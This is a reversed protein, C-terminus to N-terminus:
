LKGKRTWGSYRQVHEKLIDEVRESVDTPGSILGIAPDNAEDYSSEVYDQGLIEEAREALDPSGEFMGIMKDQSRDYPKARGPLIVEAVHLVAQLQEESLLDILNLLRERTTM